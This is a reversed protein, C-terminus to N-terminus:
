RRVAARLKASRARPNRSIEEESPLIAKKTSIEIRSRHDCRCIPIDPPCVCDRAESRFFNKVVRDELSHYSVVVLRGGPALVELAQPLVSQLQGLEDNTEIRLAQFTRTAFHIKGTKQFRKPVASEIVKLLDGVTKIAKMKRAKAIASAIQPAFKEEGYDRLIRSLEREPYSNVIDSTSAEERSGEGRGFSMDLPSSALQFSFGRARDELQASSLGLDLVVGSFQALGGPVQAASPIKDAVDAPIREEGEKSSAALHCGIIKSLNEFSDHYIRINKNKNKARFSSIALPDADIAVVEGCAGVKESIALTYGGGGLTCDIMRDGAGPALYLLVEPLMVPIHRYEM